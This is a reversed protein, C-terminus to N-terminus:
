SIKEIIENALKYQEFYSKYNSEFVPLSKYEVM